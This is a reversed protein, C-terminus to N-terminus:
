WFLFADFRFVCSVMSERDILKRRKSFKLLKRATIGVVTGIIIGLVIQYLVVLIFWYGIAQGITHDERM